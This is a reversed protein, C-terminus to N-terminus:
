MEYASDYVSSETEMIPMGGPFFGDSTAIVDSCYAFEISLATYQKKM